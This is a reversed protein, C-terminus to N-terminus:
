GNLTYNIRPLVYLESAARELRYGRNCRHCFATLLRSVFDRLASLLRARIAPPLWLIILSRRESSGRLLLLPNTTERPSYVFVSVRTIACMLVRLRILVTTLFNKVIIWRRNRSHSKSFAPRCTQFGIARGPIVNRCERRASIDASNGRAHM